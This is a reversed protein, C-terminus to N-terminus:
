PWTSLALSSSAAFAETSMLFSFPRSGWGIDCGNQFLKAGAIVIIAATWHIHCIKHSIVNQLNKWSWHAHSKGPKRMESERRWLERSIWSGHNQPTDRDRNIYRVEQKFCTSVHPHLTWGHRQCGHSGTHLIFCISVSTEVRKLWWKDFEATRVAILKLPINPFPDTRIEATTGLCFVRPDRSVPPCSPLPSGASPFLRKAARTLNLATAWHCLLHSYGHIFCPSVAPMAPFSFM